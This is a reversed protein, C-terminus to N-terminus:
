AREEEMMGREEEEEKGRRENMERRRLASGLFSMGNTSSRDCCLEGAIQHTM